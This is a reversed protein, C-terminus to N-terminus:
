KLLLELDMNSLPKIDQIGFDITKKEGIIKIGNLSPINKLDNYDVDPLVVSNPIDMLRVPITNGPKIQVKIVGIDCQNKSHSTNCIHMAPSLGDNIANRVSKTYIYQEISKVPVVILKM